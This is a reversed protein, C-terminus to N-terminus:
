KHWRSAPLGKRSVGFETRQIEAANVQNLHAKIFSLGSDPSRYITLRNVREAIEDADAQASAPRGANLRLLYMGSSVPRHQNDRGDWVQNYTGKKLTGSFLTRIL